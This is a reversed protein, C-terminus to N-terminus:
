SINNVLDREKEKIMVPMSSYTIGELTGGCVSVISKRGRKHISDNCYCYISLFHSKADVSYSSDNVM